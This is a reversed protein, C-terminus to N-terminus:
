GPPSKGAAPVPPLQREPANKLANLIAFFAPKPRFDVDFPLPRTPLGDARAFNSSFAPTLWTYRDSLGWTVLACVAPEALAANLFRSYVDAVLRDRESFDSVAGKDLVDLETIVIRPEESNPTPLFTSM